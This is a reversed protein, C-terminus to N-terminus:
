KPVQSWNYRFDDVEVSKLKTIWYFVKKGRLFFFDSGPLCGHLGREIGMATFFTRTWRTWRSQKSYLRLRFNCNYFSKTGAPVQCCGLLSFVAPKSSPVSTEGPFVTHELWRWGTAEVLNTKHVYATWKVKGPRLFEKPPLWVLHNRLGAYNKIWCRRLGTTIAVWMTFAKLRGAACLVTFMVPSICTLLVREEFFKPQATSMMTLWSYKLLIYLSIMIIAVPCLPLVFCPCTGLTELENPSLAHIRVWPRGIGSGVKHWETPCLTSNNWTVCHPLEVRQQEHSATKTGALPGGASQLHPCPM